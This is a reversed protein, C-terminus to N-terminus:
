DYLFEEKLEKSLFCYKFNQYCIPYDLPLGNLLYYVNAPTEGSLNALEKVSIEEPYVPIHKFVNKM